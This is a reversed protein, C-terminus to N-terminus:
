APWGAELLRMVGCERGKKEKGKREREERRKELV